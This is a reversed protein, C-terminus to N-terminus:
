SSHRSETGLERWLWPITITIGRRGQVASVHQACQIKQPVLVTELAAAAVTPESLDAGREVRLGVEYEAFTIVEPSIATLQQTCIVSVASDHQSQSVSDIFREQIFCRSIDKGGDTM